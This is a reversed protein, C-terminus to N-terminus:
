KHTHFGLCMTGNQLGITKLCQVKCFCLVLPFAHPCIAHCDVHINMTESLEMKELWKHGWDKQFNHHMLLETKNGM